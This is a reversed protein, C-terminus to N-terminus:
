RTGTSQLACPLKVLGPSQSVSHFLLLSCAALRCKSDRHTVSAGELVLVLWKEGVRVEEGQRIVNGLIAGDPSLSKPQVDRIRNSCPKEGTGRADIVALVEVKWTVALKSKRGDELAVKTAFERDM